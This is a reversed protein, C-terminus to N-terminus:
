VRHARSWDLYMGIGCSALGVVVLFIASRMQQTAIYTETYLGCERGYKIVNVFALSTQTHQAADFGNDIPWVRLNEPVNVLKPRGCARWLASMAIAAFVSTTWRPSKLGCTAEGHRAEALSTLKDAFTKAFAQAADAVFVTQWAMGEPVCELALTSEMVLAMREELQTCEFLIRNLAANRMRLFGVFCSGGPMYDELCGNTALAYLAAKATDGAEVSHPLLVADADCRVATQLVSYAKTAKPGWTMHAAVHTLLAHRSFLVATDLFCETERELRAPSSLLRRADYVSCLHADSADGAELLTPLFMRLKTVSECQALMHSACDVASRDQVADLISGADVTVQADSARRTCSLRSM